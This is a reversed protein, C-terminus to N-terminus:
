EKGCVTSSTGNETFINRKSARQSRGGGVTTGRGRPPLSYCGRRQINQKIRCLSAVKDDAHFEGRSNEGEGRPFTDRRIRRSPHPEEQCFCSATKVDAFRYWAYMLLLVGVQSSTGILLFSFSTFYGGLERRKNQSTKATAFTFNSRLSTQAKGSHLLTQGSRSTRFKVARLAVESVRYVESARLAFKTRLARQM